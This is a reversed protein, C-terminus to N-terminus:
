AGGMGSCTKGDVEIMSQCRELWQYSVSLFTEVIVLYDKYDESATDNALVFKEFYKRKVQITM